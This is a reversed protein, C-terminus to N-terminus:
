VFATKDNDIGVVSLVKDLRWWVFYNQLIAMSWRTAGGEIENSRAICTLETEVFLFLWGCRYCAFDFLWHQRVCKSTRALSSQIILIGHICFPVDSFINKILLCNKASSTLQLISHIQDLSHCQPVSLFRLLLKNVCCNLHSLFALVWYYKSTYYKFLVLEFLLMILAQFRSFTTSHWFSARCIIRFAQQWIDIYNCYNHALNIM